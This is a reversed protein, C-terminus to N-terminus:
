SMDVKPSSLMSVDSRRRKTAPESKEGELVNLVNKGSFSPPLQLGSIPVSCPTPVSPFRGPSVPMSFNLWKHDLAQKITLRAKPNVTMLSRVLEKAEPSVTTWERVDFEYKGETIQEYLGEDEFPPIGSLLIYLIVGLSWMDAQKGYGAATQGSERDRFTNIVEPAFYHPTGCFTRCDRSKMNKRALGFDAIKVVMRERDKSLLLINEPKLDRHVLNMDTHLYNVSDCLQQFIRRAQSETFCGGELICQLLDGGQVLEMILYLHAESQFWEFCQVINKHSLSRLVEAEDSLCLQSERNNQFALFKKKDIVKVAYKDGKKVNVGLRVESFNGSGLVHSVDWNQQVWEETVRNTHEATKQAATRSQKQVPYGNAGPQTTAGKASKDKSPSTGDSSKRGEVRFIFAAYPKEASDTTMAEGIAPREGITIADGHNLARHEGQKMFVDNIFCGSSGLEKAFYRHFEDRYIKIHNSSIHKDKICIQCNPHRGILVEKHEARLEFTTFNPETLSVLRAHVGHNLTTAVQPQFAQTQSFPQTQSIAMDQPSGANQSGM